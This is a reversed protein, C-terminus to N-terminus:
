WSLQIPRRGCLSKIMLISVKSSFIPLDWIQAYLYVNTCFFNLQEHSQASADTGQVLREIQMEFELGELMELVGPEKAGGADILSSLLLFLYLTQRHFPYYFYQSVSGHM